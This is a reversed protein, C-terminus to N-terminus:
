LEAGSVNTRHLILGCFVRAFSVTPNGCGTCIGFRHMICLFFFVPLSSHRRTHGRNTWVVTDLLSSTSFLSSNSIISLSEEYPVAIVKTCILIIYPRATSNVRNVMVGYIFRVLHFYDVNTCAFVLDYTESRCSTHPTDSTTDLVVVSYLEEM